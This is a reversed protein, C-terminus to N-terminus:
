PAGCKKLVQKWATEVQQQTEEVKGTNCIVLDAKDAKIGIPWQSDIRQRIEDSNLRDRAFLREEQLECPIFVTWVENMEKEWGSEFLLPVDIVVAKEGDNVAQLVLEEARNRILPHLLGELWKKEEADSFVRRGLWVRDLKGDASIVDPGYREKIQSWAIQGPEVIERAIADTDVVVAGLKRLIATVTSKGSAIGGTLGVRYMQGSKM